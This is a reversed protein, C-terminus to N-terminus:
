LKSRILETWSAGLRLDDPLELELKKTNVYSPNLQELTTVGMCRMTTEIEDSLVTWILNTRTKRESM